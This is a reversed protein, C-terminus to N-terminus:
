LCKVYNRQKSYSIYFLIFHPWNKQFDLLFLPIGRKLNLFGVTNWLLDYVCSWHFCWTLLIFPYRHPVTDVSTICKVACMLITPSQLSSPCVVWKLLKLYDQGTFGTFISIFFLTEDSDLHGVVCTSIERRCQLM